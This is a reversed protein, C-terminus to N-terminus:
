ALYPAISTAGPTYSATSVTSDYTMPAAVDCAGHYVSAFCVTYAAVGSEDDVFGTWACSLTGTSVVAPLDTPLTVQVRIM